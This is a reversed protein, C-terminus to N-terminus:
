NVVKEVCTKFVNLADFEGQTVTLIDGQKYRIFQPPTTGPVTRKWLRAVLRVKIGVPADDKKVAPKDTTTEAM